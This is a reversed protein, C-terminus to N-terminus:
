FQSRGRIPKAQPQTTQEVNKVLKSVSKKIADYAIVTNFLYLIVIVIIFPLIYQPQYSKSFMNILAISLYVFVCLSLFLFVFSLISALSM